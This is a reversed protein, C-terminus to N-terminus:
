KVKSQYSYIDGYTFIGNSPSEIYEDMSFCVMLHSTINGLENTVPIMCGWPYGGHKRHNGPPPNLQFSGVVKSPEFMKRVNMRKSSTADLILYEEDIQSIAIGEGTKTVSIEKWSELDKSQAIHLKRPSGGHYALYWTEEIKILDGDLSNSVIGEYKACDILHLGDNLLNENTKGIHLMGGPSPFARAVYLWQKEARNYVLKAATGAEIWDNNKAVILSVPRVIRGNSDMEYVCIGGSGGNKGMFRASTSIYFNGRENRVPEGNEYTVSRIDAHGIGEFYGASFSSVTVNGNGTVGFAPSFGKMKDPKTFHSRSTTVIGIQQLGDSTEMLLHFDDNGLLFYLTYPKGNNKIGDFNKNLTEEGSQKLEFVLDATRNTRNILCFSLTKRIKPSAM